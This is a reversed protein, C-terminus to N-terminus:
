KFKNDAQVLAETHRAVDSYTAPIIRSLSPRPKSQLYSHNEAESRTIYNEAAKRMSSPSRQPYNSLTSQINLRLKQLDQELRERPSKKRGSGMLARQNRRYAALLNSSYSKPPRPAPPSQNRSLSSQLQINGPTIM